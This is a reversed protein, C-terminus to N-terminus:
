DKKKNYWNNNKNKIEHVLKLYNDYKDKSINDKVNCNKENIHLCNTYKCAKSLEEFNLFNKSIAIEDLEVELSSFGPTDILFTKDQIEYAEVYRTTHRGRGLAKSIQSTKLDFNFFNNLLSTKGVGTQGTIVCFNNKILDLFDQKWLNDKKISFDFTQYGSESYIKMKNETDPKILDIKSFIIIPQIDNYQFMTILKDLYYDNFKPEDVSTVIIAIDINSIKPRIFDNSREHINEILYKGDSDDLKIDVYDGVKIITKENRIKGTPYVRLKEKENQVMYINKEIYIIRKKFMKM